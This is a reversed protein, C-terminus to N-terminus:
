KEETRAPECWMHEAVRWVDDCIEAIMEADARRALRLAKLPDKTWTLCGYEVTIYSPSVEGNECLWAREDAM